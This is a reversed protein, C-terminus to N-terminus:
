LYGLAKLQDRLSKDTTVTEAPERAKSTLHKEIILKYPGTVDPARDALNNKEGPDSALDYLEDPRIGTPDHQYKLTGDIVVVPQHGRLTSWNESFIYRKKVKEGEILPLLSIGEFHEPSALGLLALITPPLDILAVNERIRLGRPLRGPLRCILPVRITENYSTLGHGMRNHEAFEEGHDSTLIVLTRDDLGLAQVRSMIRSIQMDTIFIERDYRDVLLQLLWLFRDMNGTCHEMIDAVETKTRHLLMKIMEKCEVQSVGNRALEAEYARCLSGWNQHIIKRDHELLKCAGIFGLDDLTVEEKRVTKMFVRHLNEKLAEQIAPSDQEYGEPIDYPSHIQYTHFFVFFRKEANDGLWDLFRDCVTEVNGELVPIEEYRDFGQGFGYQASVYLSANFSLTAYGAEKLIEPLSLLSAPMKRDPKIVQHRSPYLSTLMSVHSPLTWNAQAYTNEFLVGESALKDIAPSIEKEYGYCYLHDARLTDLSILIINPRESNETRRAEGCHTFLLLVPVSLLMPRPAARRIKLMIRTLAAM